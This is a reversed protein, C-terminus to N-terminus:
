ENPDSRKMKATSVIHGVAFLAFLQSVPVSDRLFLDSASKLVSVERTHKEIAKHVEQLLRNPGMLRGRREVNEEYFRQLLNAPPVRSSFGNTIHEVFARGDQSLEEITRKITRLRRLDVREVKYGEGIGYTVFCRWIGDANGKSLVDYNTLAVTMSAAKLPHSRFRALKKRKPPNDYKKASFTNLNPLEDAPKPLATRSLQRIRLGLTRLLQAALARSVRPCVANGVLKWKAGESGVFQYTIPFSMLCAAERITPGRYEGDGNRKWESKYLLAERSRPFPTAM